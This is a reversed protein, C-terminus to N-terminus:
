IVSLRNVSSKAAYLHNTPPQVHADLSHNLPAVNVLQIPKARSDSYPKQIMAPLPTLGIGRVRSTRSPSGGNIMMSHSHPAFVMARLGVAIVSAPHRTSHGSFVTLIIRILPTHGL